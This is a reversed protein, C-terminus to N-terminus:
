PMLVDEVILKTAKVICSSYFDVVIQPLIEQCARIQLGEVTRERSVAVCAQGPEFVSSLDVELFDFLSKNHMTIAYALDLPVQKRSAVVIGDVEM